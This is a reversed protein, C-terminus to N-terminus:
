CGTLRAALRAGTPCQHMSVVCMTFAMTAVVIMPGRDPDVVDLDISHNVVVYRWAALLDLM